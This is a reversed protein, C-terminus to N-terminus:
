TARSKGIKTILAKQADEMGDPFSVTFQFYDSATPSIVNFVVPDTDVLKVAFEAPDNSLYKDRVKQMIANVQSVADDPNINTVILPQKADSKRRCMAVKIMPTNPNFLEILKM